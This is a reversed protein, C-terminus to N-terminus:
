SSSSVVLDQATNYDRVAPSIASRVMQPMFLVRDVERKDLTVM